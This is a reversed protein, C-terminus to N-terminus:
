KLEISCERVHGNFEAVVFVLHQLRETVMKEATALDTKHDDQDINKGQGGSNQKIQFFYQRKGEQYTGQQPKDQHDAEPKDKGTGNVPTGGSELVM